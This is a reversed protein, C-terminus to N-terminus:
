FARDRRSGAAADGTDRRKNKAASPFEICVGDGMDARMCRMFPVTSLFDSICGGIRAFQEYASHRLEIGKDDVVDALAELGLPAAHRRHDAMQRRREVLRRQMRAEAFQLLDDGVNALGLFSTWLDRFRQSGIQRFLNRRLADALVEADFFEVVILRQFLKLIIELLDAVFGCRESKVRKAHRRVLLRFQGRSFSHQREVRIQGRLRAFFVASM